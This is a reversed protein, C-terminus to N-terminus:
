NVQKLTPENRYTHNEDDDLRQPIDDFENLMNQIILKIFRVFPIKTSKHEIHWVLDEWSLIGYDILKVNVMGWLLKLHNLKPHEHGSDRGSLSKAIPIYL